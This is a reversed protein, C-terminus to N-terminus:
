LIKLINYYNNYSTNIKENYHGNNWPAEWRCFHGIITSESIERWFCFYNNPVQNCHNNFLLNIIPQDGGLGEGHNGHNNILRYKNGIEYLKNVTNEDILSSSYLLIGSNFGNSKVDTLNENDLETFINSNSENSETWMSFFNRISNKEYDVYMLNKEDILNFLPSLSSFIMTDCDIYLIRDWSKFFVDFIHYKSGYPGTNDMNKTFPKFIVNYRSLENHIISEFQKEFLICIDVEGHRDRINNINYKVHPIYNDDTCIVVLNKM